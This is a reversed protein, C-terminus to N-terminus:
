VQQPLATLSRAHISEKAKCKCIEPQDIGIGLRETHQKTVREREREGAHRDRAIPQFKHPTAASIALMVAKSYWVCSNRM